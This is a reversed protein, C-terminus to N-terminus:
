DVGDVPRWGLIHGLWTSVKTELQRAAINQKAIQDGKVAMSRLDVDGSHAPKMDLPGGNMSDVAPLPARVEHIETRVSQRTPTLRHRPSNTRVDARRNESAVTPRVATLRDERVSAPGFFRSLEDRITFSCCNPPIKVNRGLRADLKLDRPLCLWVK